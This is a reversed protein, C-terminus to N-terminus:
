LVIVALAAGIVALLVLVLCTGTGSRSPGTVVGSAGGAQAERAQLLAAREGVEPIDLFTQGLQAAERADFATSFPDFAADLQGRGPTPDFQLWGFGPFFVEVWAHANHDTM